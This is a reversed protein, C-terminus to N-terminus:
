AHSAGKGLEAALAALVGDIDEVSCYGLHAIRLVRHKLIGMGASVVVGHKALLRSKVDLALAGKAM